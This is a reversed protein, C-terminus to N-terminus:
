SKKMEKEKFIGLMSAGSMSVYQCALMSDYQCVSISIHQYASMSVDSECLVMHYTISAM